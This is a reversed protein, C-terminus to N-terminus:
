SGRLPRRTSTAVSGCHQGQIGVLLSTRNRITAFAAREDHMFAPVVKRWFAEERALGELRKVRAQLQRVNMVVVMSRPHGSPRTHMDVIVSVVPEIAAATKQSGVPHAGTSAAIGM